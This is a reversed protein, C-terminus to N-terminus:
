RLGWRRRLRGSPRSWCCSRCSCGDLTGPTAGSRRGTRSPPRRSPGARWRRARRPPGTADVLPRPWGDCARRTSARIPWSATSGASWGGCNRALRGSSGTTRVVEARYIGREAAPVRATFLGRAPDTLSPIIDITEGDPAEVRVRLEDQPSPAIRRADARRHAAGRSRRAAGLGAADGHDAGARRRYAVPRDAALVPRLQWRVGPAADEMALEGARCVAGHSGRRFAAGRGGARQQGARGDRCAGLRRAAGRGAARCRGAVAPEGMPEAGGPRHRRHADDPPAHRRRDPASSVPGRRQDGRRARRRRRRWSAAAATRRAAFRRAGAARVDQRRCVAARRRARLRVRAAVGAVRALASAPRLRRARGRRVCVASRAHVPVRQGADVRPRRRGPRLVHRRGARQPGQPGGRGSRAVPRRVMRAQSVDARLRARGRAVAGAPAPGAAAGARPGPQQGPDVRRRGGACRRHVRDARQPRAGGHVGRADARRRLGADGIATRRGTREAAPARRLQGAPAARGADGDSGRPQCRPEIARDGARRGRPRRRRRPRHGVAIIPVGAARGAAELDAGSTDNGDSLVVIASLGRAAIGNSSAACPMPWTPATAPPRLRRTAPRRSGTASCSRSSASDRRCRAAAIDRTLLAGAREIRTLGDADRLGMSRSGDVLVAVVGDQRDPPPVLVM